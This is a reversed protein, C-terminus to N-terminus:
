EAYEGLKGDKLFKQLREEVWRKYAENAAKLESPDLNGNRNQDFEHLTLPFTQIQNLDHIAASTIQQKKAYAQSVKKLGRIAGGTELDSTSIGGAFALQDGQIDQPKEDILKNFYIWGSTNPDSSVAVKLWRGDGPDLIKVKTGRKVEAAAPATVSREQKLQADPSNVYKEDSDQHRDSDSRRGPREANLYPQSLLLGALLLFLRCKM